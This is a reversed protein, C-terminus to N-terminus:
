LSQQANGRIELATALARRTEDWSLRKLAEEVSVFEAEAADDGPVPEGSVWEAIFDVMVYHRAGDCERESEPPAEFVDILAGIEVELGTEERVERAAADRLRERYEVKGGPISWQGKLPAKGRRIVLVEDGKFVVAGVGLIPRPRTDRTESAM